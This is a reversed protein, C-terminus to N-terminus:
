KSTYLTRVESQSLARSWVRLDDINGTYAQYGYKDSYASSSGIRIPLSSGTSIYYKNKNFYVFDSLLTGDMYILVDQLKPQAMQPLVITYFHWTDLMSKDVYSKTEDGIDIRIASTSFDFYVSFGSGGSSGGSTLIYGGSYKFNQFPQAWFSVTRQSTGSPMYCNTSIYDDIGDFNYASNNNGFRDTTLIAGNVDGKKGNGSMDNADGNFTCWMVLDDNLSKQTVFNLAEGYSIGIRNTAYSRVYYTTNPTLNTLLSTYLGVGSGDKTISDNVTPEPNKSWCVGRQIVTCGNDSTVESILSASNKTIDFISSRTTVIPPIGKKTTFNFSSGYSTGMKNTAYVRVYYSTEPILNRLECTFSGAGSGEKSVSDNITPDINTSWCVGRQTVTYGNDSTVEGSVTASIASINTVSLDTSVIPSYDVEKSCGSLTFILIIGILVHRDSFVDKITKM